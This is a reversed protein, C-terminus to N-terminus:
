QELDRLAAEMARRYLQETFRLLYLESGARHRQAVVPDFIATKM